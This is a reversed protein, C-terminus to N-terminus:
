PDERWHRSLSTAPRGGNTTQAVVVRNRGGRRAAHLAADARAHWDGPREGPRWGALGISLTIRQRQRNEAGLRRHPPDGQAAGPSRPLRCSLGAPVGGNSSGAASSGAAMHRTPRAAESSVGGNSLGGNSLGFRTGSQDGRRPRDPDSTM